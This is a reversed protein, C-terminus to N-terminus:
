AGQVKERAGAIGLERLIGMGLEPEELFFFARSVILEVLLFDGMTSFLTDSGSMAPHTKVYDMLAYTASTPKVKVTGNVVVSVPKRTTPTTLFNSSDWSNFNEMDKELKASYTGAAFTAKVALVKQYDAPVSGSGTTLAVSGAATILAPYESPDLASIVLPILNDAWKTINDEHIDAYAPTAMDAALRSYVDLKINALTKAM